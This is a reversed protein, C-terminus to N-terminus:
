VVVGGPRQHVEVAIGIESRLVEGGGDRLLVIEEFGRFADSECLKQPGPVVGMYGSPEHIHLAAGMCFSEPGMFDETIEKQLEVLVGELFHADGTNAVTNSDEIPDSNEAM